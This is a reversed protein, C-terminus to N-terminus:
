EALAPELGLDTILSADVHFDLDWGDDEDWEWFVPIDLGGCELVDPM